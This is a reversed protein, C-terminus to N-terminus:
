LLQFGDNLVNLVYLSKLRRTPLSVRQGAGCKFKSDPLRRYSRNDNQLRQRHPVQICHYPPQTIQAVTMEAQRQQSQQFDDGVVDDLILWKGVENMELLCKMTKKANDDDGSM